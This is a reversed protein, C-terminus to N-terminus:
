SVPDIPTIAEAAAKMAQEKEFRVTQDMLGRLIGGAFAEATEQPTAARVAGPRQQARHQAQQRQEGSAPRAGIFRLDPLVEDSEM